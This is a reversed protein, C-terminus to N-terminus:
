RWAERLFAEFIDADTGILAAARPFRFGIARRDRRPEPLIVPM